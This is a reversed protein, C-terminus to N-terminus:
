EDKDLMAEYETATMLSDLETASAGRVKFMWGAAYPDENVTEPSTELMTNVEVIQGSVPAIIDSAAKVSEVVGCEDGQEYNEGRPPMEIFTIDGLADQAHDTIGVTVVDGEPLAWEHTEAYYRDEPTM